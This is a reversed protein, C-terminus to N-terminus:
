FVKQIVEVHERFIRPPSESEHTGSTKRNIVQEDPFYFLSNRFAIITMNRKLPYLIPPLSHIQFFHVKFLLHPIQPRQQARPLIREQTIERQEGEAVMKSRFLRRVKRALRNEPPIESLEGLFVDRLIEVLCLRIEFVKGLDTKEVDPFSRIGGAFFVM